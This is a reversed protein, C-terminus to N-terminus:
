SEENSPSEPEAPDCLLLLLRGKRALEQSLGPFHARFFGESSAYNVESAKIPPGGAVEWWALLDLDPFTIGEIVGGVTLGRPTIEQFTLEARMPRLELGHTTWRARNVVIRNEDGAAALPLEHDPFRALALSELVDLSSEPLILSPQRRRLHAALGQTDPFESLIRASGTPKLARLMADAAQMAFFAGVEIELRQFAELWPSSGEASSAFRGEAAQIVERLGSEPIQEWLQDLDVRRLAYTNWAEAYLEPGVEFDSPGALAPQHHVQAVRVAEPPAGPIDMVLVLPPNYYRGMPGWGGLSRRVSRIQGPKPEPPGNTTELNANPSTPSFLQRLSSPTMGSSFPPPVREESDTKMIM